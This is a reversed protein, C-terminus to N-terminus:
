SRGHKRSTAAKGYLGELLKDLQEGKPIKNSIAGKQFKEQFDLYDEEARGLFSQLRLPTLRTKRNTYLGKSIDAENISRAANSIKTETRTIRLELTKVGQDFDQIDHRSISRKITIHEKKIEKFKHEWEKIDTMATEGEHDEALKWEDAASYQATTNRLEFMAHDISAKIHSKADTKKEAAQSASLSQHLTSIAAIITADRTTSLQDVNQNHTSHHQLAPVVDIEEAKNNSDMDIM